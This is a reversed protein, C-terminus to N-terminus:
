AATSSIYSIMMWEINVFPTGMRACGKNKIYNHVRALFLLRGTASLSSRSFKQRSVYKKPLWLNIIRLQYFFVPGVNQM